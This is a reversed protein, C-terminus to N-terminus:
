NSFYDGSKQRNKNKSIKEKKKAIIKPSLSGIKFLSVAENVEFNVSVYLFLHEVDEPCLNSGCSELVCSNTRAAVMYM